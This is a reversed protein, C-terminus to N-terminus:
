SVRKYSNWFIKVKIYGKVKDSNIKVSLDVYKSSKIMEKELSSIIYGFYIKLVAEKRFNILFFVM